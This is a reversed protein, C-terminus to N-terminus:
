AVLATASGDTLMRELQGRPVTLTSGDCEAFLVIITKQLKTVIATVALTPVDKWFGKPFTVRAGMMLTPHTACPRQSPKDRSHPTAVESGVGLEAAGRM